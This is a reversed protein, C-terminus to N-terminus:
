QMFIHVPICVTLLKYRYFEIGKSELQVLLWNVAYIRFQCEINNYSQQSRSWLRAKERFDRSM